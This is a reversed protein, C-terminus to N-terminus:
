LSPASRPSTQSYQLRTPWCRARFNCFDIMTQRNRITISMMINGRMINLAVLDRRSFEMPGFLQNRIDSCFINDEKESIQSSLGMLIDEITDANLYDKLLFITLM